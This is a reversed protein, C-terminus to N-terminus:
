RPMLQEPSIASVQITSGQLNGRLTVRQGALKSLEEQDGTLTYTRESNILIYAAGKRVCARVCDATTKGSNMPHRAGCRSDTLMGSVTRISGDNQGAHTDYSQAVALAVTASAFLIALGLASVLAATAYFVILSFWSGKRKEM